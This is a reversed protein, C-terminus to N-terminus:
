ATCCTSRTRCGTVTSWSRGAPVPAVLM